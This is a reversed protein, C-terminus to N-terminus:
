CWSVGANLMQPAAGSIGLRLVLLNLMTQLELAYGGVVCFVCESPGTPLPAPSLEPPAACRAIGEGRLHPFLVQFHWPGALCLTAPRDACAPAARAM